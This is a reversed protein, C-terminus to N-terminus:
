IVELLAIFSSVEEKLSHNDKTKNKLKTLLNIWLSPKNVGNILFNHISSIEELTFKDGNKLKISCEGYYLYLPETKAQRFPMSYPSLERWNIDECKVSITISSIENLDICSCDTIDFLNIM